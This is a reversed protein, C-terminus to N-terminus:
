AFGYNDRPDDFEGLNYQTEIVAEVMNAILRVLAFGVRRPFVNSARCECGREHAVFAIPQLNSLTSARGDERAAAQVCVLPRLPRGWLAETLPRVGVVRFRGNLPRSRGPENPQRSEPAPIGHPHALFQLRIRVV